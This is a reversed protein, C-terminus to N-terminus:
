PTRHRSFKRFFLRQLPGDFEGFAVNLSSRVLEERLRLHYPDYLLAEGLVLSVVPVAVTRSHRQAAIGDLIALLYAGAFPVVLVDLAVAEAYSHKKHAFLKKALILSSLLEALRYVLRYGHPLLQKLIRAAFALEVDLPSLLAFLSVRLLRPLVQYPLGSQLRVYLYICRSASTRAM